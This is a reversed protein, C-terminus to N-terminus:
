ASRGARTGPERPLPARVVGAGCVGMGLIGVAVLAGATSPRVMLLLAIPGLAGASMAATLTVAWRVGRPVGRQLVIIGGAVAAIVIAAVLLTGWSAGPVGPGFDEERRAGSSVTWIWLAAGLAAEGVAGYALYYRKTHRVATSKGM